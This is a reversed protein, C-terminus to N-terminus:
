ELLSSMLISNLPDHTRKSGTHPGSALLNKSFKEVDSCISL